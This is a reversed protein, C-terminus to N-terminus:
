IIIEGSLFNARYDKLSKFTTTEATISEDFVMGIPYTGKLNQKFAIQDVQNRFEFIFYRAEKNHITIFVNLHLLYVNGDKKLVSVDIAKETGWDWPEIINLKYKM